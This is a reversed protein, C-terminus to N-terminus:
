IAAPARFRLKRSLALGLLGLGLLVLPAPEPVDACRGQDQNISFNGMGWDSPEVIIRSISSCSDTVYAGYGSTNGRGVGFYVRETSYVSGDFAQIWAMGTFSAGVWFSFARTGAPLLIEVWNVKTTYVNGHDYQWWAPDYARMGLPDGYQNTFELTGGGDIPSLVSTISEGPGTREPPAFPTMEYGGLLGGDSAGPIPEIVIPGAVAMGHLLVALACTTLLRFAPFPMATEPIATLM